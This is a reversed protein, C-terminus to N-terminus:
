LFMVPQLVLNYNDKLLEYKLSYGLILANTITLIPSLPLTAHSVPFVEVSIQMKWVGARKLISLPKPGPQLLHLFFGAFGEVWLGDTM